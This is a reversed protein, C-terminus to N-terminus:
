FRGTQKFNKMKLNWAYQNMKKDVEERIDEYWGQKARITNPTNDLKFDTDGLLRRIDLM